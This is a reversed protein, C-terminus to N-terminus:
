QFPATVIYSRRSRVYLGVRRSAVEIRRVEASSKLAVGSKPRYTVVYQSDIERALEDTLKPIEEASNPLIM